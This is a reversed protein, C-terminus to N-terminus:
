LRGTPFGPRSKEDCAWRVAVNSFEAQMVLFGNKALRVSGRPTSLIQTESDLQMQGFTLRPM